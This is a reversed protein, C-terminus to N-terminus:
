LGECQRFASKRLHDRTPMAQPHADLYDFTALRLTALSGIILAAATGMASEGHQNLVSYTFLASAIGYNAFDAYSDLKAGMEHTARMARAVLGDAKDIIAAAILLKAATAPEGHMSSLCSLVARVRPAWPLGNPVRHKLRMFNQAQERIEPHENIIKQLERQAAGLASKTSRGEQNLIRLVPELSESIEPYRRITDIVSDIEHLVEPHEKAMQGLEKLSERTRESGPADQDLSDSLATLIQGLDRMVDTRSR